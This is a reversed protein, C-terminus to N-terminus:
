ASHYYIEVDLTFDVDGMPAGFWRVVVRFGENAIIDSLPLDLTETQTEGDDRQQDTTTAIPATEAAYVEMDLFAPVPLIVTGIDSPYRLTLVIKQVQEKVAFEYTANLQNPLVGLQGAEKKILDIRAVLTDNSSKDGKGEVILTVTYVGEEEFTYNVVEGDLVKIYSGTVNGHINWTWREIPGSSISANFTVPEGLRGVLDPGANALVEKDDDGNGNEEEEGSDLCGATFTLLVLLLVLALSILKRAPTRM